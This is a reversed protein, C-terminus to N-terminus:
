RRARERGRDAPISAMLMPKGTRLVEHVGATSNPDAPYRQQLARAYEVKAPDFHAVALRQLRGVEDLMDVVCWDAIEPVALRAVVALTHEYDLSRSLITTADALFAAHRQRSEAAQRQARQEEYLDATTLAAAALNALAQGTQVDSDSFIHPTRYYFVLTGVRESGLRMPCVLM